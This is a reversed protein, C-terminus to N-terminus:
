FSLQRFWPSASKHMMKQEYKDMVSIYMNKKGKNGKCLKKLSTQLSTVQSHPWFGVTHILLGEFLKIRQKYVKM